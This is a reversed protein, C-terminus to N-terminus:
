RRGMPDRPIAAQQIRGAFERVPRMPDPPIRAVPRDPGRFEYGCASCHFLPGRKALSGAKSCSPCAEVSEHYQLIAGASEVTGVAPSSSPPPPEHLSNTAPQLHTQPERGGTPKPGKWEFLCTNCRWFQGHVDTKVYRNSHCEPCGDNTEIYQIVRRAERNDQRAQGAAQELILETLTLRLVSGRINNLAQTLADVQDDHSGNPFQAAEEIFGAVWSVDAPLYVNHAEVFASVAHARAEKGGEPQVAILGPIESKLTDIVASGNAKDEVLKRHTEPWKASMQRIAEVTRSFSMQGRVQDLLYRGAGAVGWVQGVVFDSSRTDKFTCDWSQLMESFKAPPEKFFQWDDRKFIGGGLPGPRGQYLAQWQYSSTAGGDRIAILSELSHREVSLPEGALRYPLEDQEAIAAFNVIEWRGPQKELLRGVLDDLHWRTCMVIVGAGEQLRTMATSTLWNWVSERISESIAEAFDKIPDDIIVLDAPEGTIGGGVGAARYRGRHGVVQFLGAARRAEGQRAYEGVIRTGPFIGHYIPTDIVKQVDNSFDFARDASYSTAIIKLDPDKGLAYPPLRRSVLESKGHQPPATLILRPSRKAAIDAVFRDLREAVARHFWGPRYEPFTRETFALLQRRAWEDRIEGLSAAKLTRKKM